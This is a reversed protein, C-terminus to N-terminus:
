PIRPRLLPCVSSGSRLAQGVPQYFRGTSGRTYVTAGQMVGCHGVAPASSCGGHILRSTKQFTLSVRELIHKKCRGGAEAPLRPQPHRPRSSGDRPVAVMLISSGPPYLPCTERAVWCADVAGHARPWPMPSPSLVARLLEPSPAAGTQVRLGGPASVRRPSCRSPHLSEGSIRRSLRRGQLCLGSTRRKPERTQVRADPRPSGQQTPCPLEFPGDGAATRPTSSHVLTHM